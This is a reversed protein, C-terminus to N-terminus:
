EEWTDVAIKKNNIKLLEEAINLLRESVKIIERKISSTKEEEISEQPIEKTESIEETEPVKEIESPEVVKRKLVKGVLERSGVWVIVRLTHPDYEFSRYADGDYNWGMQWKGMTGRYGRTKWETWTDFYTEPLDYVAEIEKLLENMMNFRDDFRRFRINYNEIVGALWKIDEKTLVKGEMQELYEFIDEKFM